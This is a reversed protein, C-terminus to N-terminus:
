ILNGVRWGEGTAEPIIAPDESDGINYLEPVKGKLNNYLTKNPSVGIPLIHDAELLKEEGNKTKIVLGKKNVAILKVSAHMEVGKKNFWLFLRNKREPALLAGLENGEEVIIAQRGRKVLFEALQCGYISGGIIVVKKGIPKWFKKGQPVFLNLSKNLTAPSFYRLFFKGIAYLESSKIVNSGNMGPIDPYTPQAGTALVLADPKEKLITSEDLTTGKYVKVNLKQLQTEFFKYIEPVKEIEVGKITAALPLNGGLLHGNDYLSVDHGKIAAVRAAQMGAPGGGAVVVKKKVTAKEIDYKDTGFSANIRCQRPKNYLKNCNGCLTCPQIDEKRGQKIKNPYAPDAFIKRNIGVLDVKGELLAKEGSDANLGSTTLVTIKNTAKKIAAASPLNIMAGNYRWEMEKPLDKKDFCLEPYWLVEQNYSGQHHGVIHTRAHLIDVGINELHQAIKIGEELTIGENGLGYEYANIIVQVPFDEGCRKKIGKVVNDLFRMRNEINQPGYEDDRKNWFRSMFTHFLHDAGANIEVGDFGGAKLRYASSIFRETTEEIEEITMTRPPEEEHVDYNSYANISSAALRPAIFNYEKGWPGRHYLQMFCKCDDQHLVKALEQIDKINEDSDIRLRRDGDDLLPWEMAPTEVVVLGAGGKAVAGYFAKAISGVRRKGSNFFYTQAATKVIRNKLQLKGIEYPEFLKKYHNNTM